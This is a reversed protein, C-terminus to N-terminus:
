GVERVYLQVDQIMLTFPTGINAFALDYYHPGPPPNPDTFRIASPPYFVNTSAGASLGTFVQGGGYRQIQYAIGDRLMAITFNFGALFCNSQGGLNPLLQVEVDKFGTCTLTSGFQGFVSGITTGYPLTGTFGAVTSVGALVIQGTPQSLFYSKPAIKAPTVAQDALKQTTISSDPIFTAGLPNYGILPAIQGQGRLYDVADIRTSGGQCQIKLSHFSTGTFPGFWTNMSFGAVPLGDLTVATSTGIVGIVAFASGYYGVNLVCTNTSGAWYAGGAAAATFGNFWPGQALFQSAYIRDFLGFASLTANQSNQQVFTQGIAVEALRGLTAGNALNSRYGLIRTLIVQTMGAGPQMLVSHFGPGANTMVTRKLLSPSGLNNIPDNFNMSNMGDIGFTAQLTASSGCMFEMALAQYSGEIHLVSSVGFAIGFTQGGGALLSSGPVITLYNGWVRYRNLPDQWALSTQAIPAGTGVTFGIPAPSQANAIAPDFEFSQTFGATSIAFTYGAQWLSYVTGSAGAPLTTGLTLVDTAQSVVNGVLQTTGTQMWVATGAPFSAGTGPTLNLLNTGSGGQGVSVIDGVFSTTFGISSTPTLFFQLRGGRFTGVSPFTTVGGAYTYATKVKNIYMTGSNVDYFNGLEFSAVCGGVALSGSATPSIQWDQVNRGPNVVSSIALNYHTQAPYGLTFQSTAQGSFNFSDSGILSGNVYEQATIGSGFTSPELLWGMRTILGGVGFVDGRDNLRVFNGTPTTVLQVSGAVYGYVGPMDEQWIIRYTPLVQGTIPSTVWLRKDAVPVLDKIYLGKAGFRVTMDNAYNNGLPNTLVTSSLGSNSSPVLTIDSFADQSFNLASQSGNQIDFLLGNM